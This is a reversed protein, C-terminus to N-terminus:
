YDKVAFFAMATAVLPVLCAMVLETITYGPQNLVAVPAIVFVAGGGLLIRRQWKSM